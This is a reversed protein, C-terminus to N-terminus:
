ATTSDTFVELSCGVNIGNLSIYRRHPPLVHPNIIECLLSWTCSQFRNIRTSALRPYGICINKQCTQHWGHRWAAKAWVMAHPKLDGLGLAYADDGCWPHYHKSKTQYWERPLV